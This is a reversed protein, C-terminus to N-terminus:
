GYAVDMRPKVILRNNEYVLLDREKVGFQKEVIAIACMAGWTIVYYKEKTKKNVLKFKRM